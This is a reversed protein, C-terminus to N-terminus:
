MSSRPPMALAAVLGIAGVDGTLLFPVALPIPAGM